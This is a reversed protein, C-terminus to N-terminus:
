RPCSKAMGWDWVILAWDAEEPMGPVPQDADTSHNDWLEVRCPGQPVYARSYRWSTRLEHPSM